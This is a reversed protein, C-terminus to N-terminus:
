IPLGLSKTITMGTRLPSSSTLAISGFLCGATEIWLILSKLKTLQLEFCLVRFGFGSVRLDKEIEM